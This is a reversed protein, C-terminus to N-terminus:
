VVAPLKEELLCAPIQYLKIGGMLEEKLVNKTVLFAQQTRLIGALKLLNKYDAPNIREQYKVEVPFVGKENKVVFDVEFNNKRFFKVEGSKVLQNYVYNEVLFGM